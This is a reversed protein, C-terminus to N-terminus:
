GTNENIRDAVNKRRGKQKKVKTKQKKKEKGPRDKNAM